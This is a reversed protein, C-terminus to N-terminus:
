RFAGRILKSLAVQSFCVACCRSFTRACSTDPRDVYSLWLDASCRKPQNVYRGLNVFAPTSSYCYTRFGERRASFLVSCKTRQSAGHRSKPQSFASMLNVTIRLLIKCPAAKAVARNSDV